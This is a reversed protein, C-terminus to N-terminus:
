RWGAEAIFTNLATRLLSFRDFSRNFMGAAIPPWSDRETDAQSLWARIPNRADQMRWVFRGVPLFQAQKPDFEQPAHRNLYSLAALVEFRDFFNDFDDESGALLALEDKMLTNLHDSLPTRLRKGEPVALLQWEERLQSFATGPLLGDL